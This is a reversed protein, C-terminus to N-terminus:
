LIELNHTGRAWHNLPQQGLLFQLLLFTKTYIRASANKQHVSTFNTPTYANRLLCINPTFAQQIMNTCFCTQLNTPTCARQNFFMKTHFSGPAFVQQHLFKKPPFAQQHFILAFPLSFWPFVCAFRLLRALPPPLTRPHPPGPLRLKWHLVGVNEIRMRSKEPNWLRSKEKLVLSLFRTRDYDENITM